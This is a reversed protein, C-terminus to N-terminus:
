KDLLSNVTSWVLNEVIEMFTKFRTDTDENLISKIDEADAKITDEDYKEDPLYLMCCCVNVYKKSIPEFKIMFGIKPFDTFKNKGSTVIIMSRNNHSPVDGSFYTNAAYELIYEGFENGLINEISLLFKDDYFFKNNFTLTKVTQQLALCWSNAKKTEFCEKLLSAINVSKEAHLVVCELPVTRDHRFIFNDSNSNMLEICTYRKKYKVDISEGYRSLMELTSKELEIEGIQYLYDALICVPGFLSESCYVKISRHWDRRLEDYDMKGGNRMFAISAIIIDIDKVIVHGGGKIRRKFNFYKEAYKFYDLTQQLNESTIPRAAAYYLYKKINTVYENSKDTLAAIKYASLYKGQEKYEEYKRMNDLAQKIFAEGAREDNHTLDHMYRRASYRRVVSDMHKDSFFIRRKNTLQKLKPSLQKISAFERILMFTWLIDGKDFAECAEKFRPSSESDFDLYNTICWDRISRKKMAFDYARSFNRSDVDKQLEENWMQCFDKKLQEDSLSFKSLKLFM